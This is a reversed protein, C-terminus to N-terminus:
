RAPIILRTYQVPPIPAICIRRTPPTPAKFRPGREKEENNDLLSLNSIHSESSGHSRRRSTGAAYLCSCATHRGTGLYRDRESTCNPSKLLAQNFISGLRSSREEPHIFNTYSLARIPDLQLETRTPVVSVDIARINLTQKSPILTQYRTFSPPSTLKM